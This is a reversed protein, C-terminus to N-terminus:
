TKRGWRRKEELSGLFEAESELTDVNLIIGKLVKEYTKGEQV